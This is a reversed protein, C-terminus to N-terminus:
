EKETLEINETEKSYTLNEFDLADKFAQLASVPNSHLGSNVFKRKEYIWLQCSHKIQGDYCGSVTTIRPNAYGRNTAAIVAFNYFEQTTM